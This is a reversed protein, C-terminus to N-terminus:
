PCSECGNETKVARRREEGTAAPFDNIQSAGKVSFAENRLQTRNPHVELISLM